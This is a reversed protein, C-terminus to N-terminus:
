AQAALSKENQAKQQLNMLYLTLEVRSSVGLKNFVRFLYNRITHESLHLNAAIEQNKLGDAVLRVIMEERRSLLQVGKANVVRLPVADVLAELLFGLEESNAWIQGEYVARICKCLASFPADRRFLGHAGNRFTDIVLERTPAEVLMVVQTGSHLVHLERLVTFGMLPGDPLNVSIVAVDSEKEKLHELVEQSPGACAVVAFRSRQRRLAQEMLQCNVLSAEALFVSIRPVGLSAERIM